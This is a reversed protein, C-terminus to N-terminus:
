PKRILITIGRRVWFYRSFQCEGLGYRFFQISLTISVLSLSLIPYDVIVMLFLIGSVSSFLFQIYLKVYHSLYWGSTKKRAGVHLIHQFKIPTCLLTCHLVFFVCCAHLLRANRPPLTCKRAHFHIDAHVLTGCAHLFQFLCLRSGGVKSKVLWNILWEQCTQISEMFLSCPPTQSSSLAGSLSCLSYSHRVEFKLLTREFM